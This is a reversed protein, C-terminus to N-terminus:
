WIGILSCKLQKWAKVNGLFAVDFLKICTDNQICKLVDLLYIIKLLISLDFPIHM